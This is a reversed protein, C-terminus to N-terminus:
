TVGKAPVFRILNLPDSRLGQPCGPAGITAAGFMRVGQGRIRSTERSSDFRERRIAL